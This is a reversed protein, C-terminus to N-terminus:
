VEVGMVEEEAEMEAEEMLPHEEDWRKRWADAEEVSVVCKRKKFEANLWRGRALSGEFERKKERKELDARKRELDRKEKELDAKTPIEKMVAGLYTGIALIALASVTTDRDLAEQKLLRHIEPSVFVAKVESM